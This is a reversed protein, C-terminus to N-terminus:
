PIQTVFKAATCEICETEQLQSGIRDITNDLSSWFKGKVMKGTAPDEGGMIEIYKLRNKEAMNVMMSNNRVTTMMEHLLRAYVLYLAPMKLYRLFKCFFEEPNCERIVEMQFGNSGCARVEVSGVVEMKPADVLYKFLEGETLEVSEGNIEITADEVPYIFIYGIRQDVYGSGSVSYDGPGFTTVGDGFVGVTDIGLYSKYRQFKALREFFYDQLLMMAEDHVRRYLERGTIDGQNAAHAAQFNTFGMQEIFLGSKSENAECARFGIFNETCM